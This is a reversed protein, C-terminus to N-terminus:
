PFLNEIDELFIPVQGFLFVLIFCLKSFSWCKSFQCSIQLFLVFLNWNIQVVVEKRLEDDFLVPNILFKGDRFWAFQLQEMYDM